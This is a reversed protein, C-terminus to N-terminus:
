VAVLASFSSSSNKLEVHFTPLEKAEDGLRAPMNNPIFLRDCIATAVTPMDTVGTANGTM